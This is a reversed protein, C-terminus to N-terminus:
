GHFAASVSIDYHFSVLKIKIIRELKRMKIIDIADDCIRLRIRCRHLSQVIRSHTQDSLVTVRSVVSYRYLMKFLTEETDPKFVIMKGLNWLFTKPTHVITFFTTIICHAHPYM